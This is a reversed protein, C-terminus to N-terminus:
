PHHKAPFYFETKLLKELSQILVFIQRGLIFFFYEFKSDTPSLFTGVLQNRINRLLFLM